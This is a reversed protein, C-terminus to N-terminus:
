CRGEPAACCDAMREGTNEPWFSLSFLEMFKRLMAPQKERRRKSSLRATRVRSSIRRSFIMKLTGDNRLKELSTNVTSLLANDMPAPPWLAPMKRWRARLARPQEADHECRRVQIAVRGVIPHLIQPRETLAAVHFAEYVAAEAVAEPGRPNLAVHHGQNSSPSELPGFCL